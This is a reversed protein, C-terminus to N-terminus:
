RIKIDLESVIQGENNKDWFRVKCHYTEGAKMPNGITLTAQLNEAEKELFGDKQEAFLDDVKLIDVRNTDTVQLMVGLFAKGDKLDFNNIGDIAFSIKSGLTVENSNLKENKEDALYAEKFSLGNNITIMGTALNKKIGKSSNFKFGEGNESFDTSAKGNGCANLLITMSFLSISITRMILQKQVKPLGSNKYLNKIVFHSVL